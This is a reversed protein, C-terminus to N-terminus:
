AIVNSVSFEFRVIIQVGAKRKKSCITRALDSYVTTTAIRRGMRDCGHACNPKLGRKIDITTQM